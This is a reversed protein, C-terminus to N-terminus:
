RSEELAANLAAKAETYLGRLRPAAAAPDAVGDNAARELEGAAQQLASAGLNGASSKIAHALRRAIELDDAARDLKDLQEAVFSVFLEIMEELLEPGGLGLLQEVRDRALASM